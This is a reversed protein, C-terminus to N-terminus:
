ILDVGALFKMVQLLSLFEGVSINVRNMHNDSTSNRSRRNVFVRTICSREKRSLTLVVECCCPYLLVLFFIRINRSYELCVCTSYIEVFFESLTGEKKSCM